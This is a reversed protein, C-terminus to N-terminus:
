GAQKDFNARLATVRGTLAELAAKTAKGLSEIESMELGLAKAVQDVLEDKRVTTRNGGDTKSKAVYVGERVLKARVSQLSVELENAWNEVVQDREDMNEAATYDAVMREMVEATYKEANASM